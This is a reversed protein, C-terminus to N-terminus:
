GKSYLHKYDPNMTALAARARFGEAMDFNSLKTLSFDQCLLTSVHTEYLKQGFYDEYIEDHRAFAKGFIKKYEPDTILNELLYDRYERWDKFMFPLERVIFDDKGM